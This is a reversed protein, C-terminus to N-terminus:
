SCTTGTSTSCRPTPGCAARGALATKVGGEVHWAHEEDYSRQRCSVRPQLRRGQLRPRGVRLGDRDPQLSVRAGGAAVRELFSREADVHTPPAIAPTFFTDLAAEKREYDLRAGLTLDLRDSFTSPARASCASAGITSRRSPSHQEGPVRHVPLPRLALDHQRRGPRLEAHLLRRRDAVEAAPTRSGSPRAPRRRSACRRRSSCRRRRTTARSWRCGGHLRPGDADHPRGGSSVPAPRSACMRAGEHRSLVTTSLIDRNTYGEFDRSSTSRIPACRTSITSRTTATARGSAASSPAHRGTPPRRGCSSRRASVHGFPLGRRTRDGRKDHFRRAAAASRSASPWAPRRATRVVHRAVERSGFDGFPASSTGTWRTLSPRGSTINVLGGLTNRGFLASQPGRVFEVQRRRLVRHEVLQRQAAARRRHLDHHGPQGPEVRHRPVRPNSLRARPSTRSTRTPRCYAADSM